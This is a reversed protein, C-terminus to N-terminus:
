KQIYVFPFSLEPLAKILWSYLDKKNRLHFNLVDTIRWIDVKTYM